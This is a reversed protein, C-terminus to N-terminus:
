RYVMVALYGPLRTFRQYLSFFNHALRFYFPMVRGDAVEEFGFQEYFPVLKDMCTLWVPSPADALLQRIIHAAIGQKRWAKQVAVSALERSGDRHPKIQGCGILRGDGAVAVVFRQWKLGIPNIHVAHILSKIAKKDQQTAPRYTIATQEVM